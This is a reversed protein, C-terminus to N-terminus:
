SVLSRRLREPWDPRSLEITLQRENKLLLEHGFSVTVWGPPEPTYRIRYRLERLGFAEVLAQVQALDSGEQGTTM